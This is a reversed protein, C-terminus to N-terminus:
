PKPHLECWHEKCYLVNRESVYVPPELKFQEYLEKPDFPDSFHVELPLEPHNQGARTVQRGSELLHKLVPQLHECTEQEALGLNNRAFDSRRWRMVLVLAVAAAAAVVLFVIDDPRVTSPM